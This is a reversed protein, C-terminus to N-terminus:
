KYKIKVQIGDVMCNDPISEFVVSNELIVCDKEITILPIRFKIIYVLSDILLLIKSM